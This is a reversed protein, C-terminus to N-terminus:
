IELLITEYTIFIEILRLYTGAFSIDDQRTKDYDPHVIDIVWTM